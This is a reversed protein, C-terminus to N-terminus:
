NKTKKELIKMEYLKMREYARWIRIIAYFTSSSLLVVLPILTVVIITRARAQQAAQEQAAPLTGLVSQMTSRAENELGNAAVANGQSRKAQAEQILILARNVKALLTPAKGGSQYITKLQLFTQYSLTTADTAEQSSVYTAMTITLLLIALLVFLVRKPILSYSHM